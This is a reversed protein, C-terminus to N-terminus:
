KADGSRSGTDPTREAGSAIGAMQGISMTGPRPERRPPKKPAARDPARRAIAEAMRRRGESQARITNGYHVYARSVADRTTRGTTSKELFTFALEDMRDASEVLSISYRLAVERSSIVFRVLIGPPLLLEREIDAMLNSAATAALIFDSAAACRALPDDIALFAAKQAPPLEPMIRNLYNTNSIIHRKVTAQMDIEGPSNPAPADAPDLFINTLTAHPPAQVDSSSSRPTNRHRMPKPIVAKLPDILPDPVIVAIPM